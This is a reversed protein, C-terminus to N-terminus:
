RQARVGPGNLSTKEHLFSRKATAAEVNGGETEAAHPEAEAVTGGGVPMLGDRQDTGGNLAPHCEEVRGLGVAGTEVLLDDALRKLRHAVSDDNGGLEAELVADRGVPEVAPGLADPLDAVLRQPAQAGVDDVQEVLM